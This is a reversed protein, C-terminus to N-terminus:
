HTHTHTHTNLQQHVTGLGALPRVAAAAGCPLDSAGGVRLLDIWVRPIYCMLYIFFICM